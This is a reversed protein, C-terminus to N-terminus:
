VTATPALCGVSEIELINGYFPNRLSCPEQEPSYLKDILLRLTLFLHPQCEAQSKIKAVTWAFNSM